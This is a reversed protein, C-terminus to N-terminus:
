QDFDSGVLAGALLNGSRKLILDEPPNPAYCVWDQHIQDASDQWSLVIKDGCRNNLIFKDSEAYGHWDAGAQDEPTMRYADERRGGHIRLVQGPKFPAGNDGIWYLELDGTTHCDEDFLAHRIQMTQFSVADDGINKVDVWEGFLAEPCSVEFGGQDKGSDKGAPNPKAQIIELSM